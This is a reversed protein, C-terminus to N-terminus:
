QTWSGTHEPLVVFVPAQGPDNSPRAAPDYQVRTDEPTKPQLTMLEVVEVVVVVVDFVLPDVVVDEEVEVLELEFLEPEFLELEFLELEFLELLVVAGVGAGVVSLLEVVFEVVVELELEVPLMQELPLYGTLTSPAGPTKQMAPGIQEPVFSLVPLQGPTLSRAEPDYQM